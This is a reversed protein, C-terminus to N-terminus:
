WSKPDFNPIRIDRKKIIRKVLNVAALYHHPYEGDIDSLRDLASSLLVNCIRFIYFLDSKEKQMYTMETGNSNLYDTYWKRGDDDDDDDFEDEEDSEPKEYRKSSKFIFDVLSGDDILDIIRNLANLEKVPFSCEGQCHDELKEIVIWTTQIYSHGVMSALDKGNDINVVDFVVNEQTVPQPQFDEKDMYADKFRKVASATVSLGQSTLDAAIRRMPTGKKLERIVYDKFKSGAILNPRAM